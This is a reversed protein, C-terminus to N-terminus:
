SGTCLLRVYTRVSPCSAYHPWVFTHGPSQSTSRCGSVAIYLNQRWYWWKRSFPIKCDSTARAQWPCFYLNNNGSIYIEPKSPWMAKRFSLCKVM